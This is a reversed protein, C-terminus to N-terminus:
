LGSVLSSRLLEPMMWAPHDAHAAGRVEPTPEEGGHVVPRGAATNVRDPSPARGARRAREARPAVSPLRPPPALGYVRGHILACLTPEQDGGTRGRARHQSTTM